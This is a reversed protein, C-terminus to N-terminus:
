VASGLSAIQVFYWLIMHHVNMYQLSKKFGMKKNDAQVEMQKTSM